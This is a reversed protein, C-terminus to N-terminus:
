CGLDLDKLYIAYYMIKKFGIDKLNMGYIKAVAYFIMIGILKHIFAEGWFTQDTRLVFYEFDRFAFCLIYILSIILLIKSKKNLM